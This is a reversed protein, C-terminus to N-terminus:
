VRQGALSSSILTQNVRRSCGDSRVRLFARFHLTFSDIPSVHRPAESAREMKALLEKM